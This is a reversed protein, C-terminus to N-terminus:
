YTLRNPNLTSTPRPQCHSQNAALRSRVTTRSATTRATSSIRPVAGISALWAISAEASPARGTPAPWAEWYSIHKHTIATQGDVSPWLDNWRDAAQQQTLGHAYRYAIRSGVNYRSRILQAIQRLPVGRATLEARLAALEARRSRRSPEM